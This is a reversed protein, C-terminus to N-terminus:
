DSAHSTEEANRAQMAAQVLKGKSDSKKYPIGSHKLLEEIEAKSKLMLDDAVPATTETEEVIEDEEPVEEVTAIPARALVAAV